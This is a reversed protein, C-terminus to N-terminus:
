YKKETFTILTSGKLFFVLHNLICKLNLAFFLLLLCNCLSYKAYSILSLIWTNWQEYDRNCRYSYTM